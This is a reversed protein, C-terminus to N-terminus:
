LNVEGNVTHQMAPAFCLPKDPAIVPAGYTATRLWGIIASLNAAKGKGRAELAASAQVCTDLVEARGHTAIEREVFHVIGDRDLAGDPTKTGIGVATIGTFSAM